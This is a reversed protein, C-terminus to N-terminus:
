IRLDQFDRFPGVYSAPGVSMLNTAVVHLPVFGPERSPTAASCSGFVFNTGDSTVDAGEWPVQDPNADLKRVVNGTTRNLVVFSNENTQPPPHNFTSYVLGFATPSAAI